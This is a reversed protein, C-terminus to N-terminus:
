NMFSNRQPSYNGKEDGRIIREWEPSNQDILPYAKKYDKQLHLKGINEQLFSSLLTPM